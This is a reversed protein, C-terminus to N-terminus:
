CPDGVIFKPDLRPYNVYKKFGSKPFKAQYINRDSKSLTLFELLNIQCDEVGCQFRMSRDTTAKSYGGRWAMKTIIWRRIKGDVRKSRANKKVVLNGCELLVMIGIGHDTCRSILEASHKSVFFENTVAFYMKNCFPLYSEWKTDAKFDQYCSKVEVLIIHGKQNFGLIDARLKSSRSSSKLGVEDYVSFLKDALYYTVAQKIQLTTQKRM